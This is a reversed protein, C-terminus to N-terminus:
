RGGSESPPPGGTRTWVVIAGCRNTDMRFETPVEAPSRYIEVLEIVEPDLRDLLFDRRRTGDVYFVPECATTGRGLLIKQFGYGRYPRVDVRPVGRLMDSTLEPQREEIEERTVYAGHGREIRERVRRERVDLRRVEVKLDAVEFVEESLLFTARTTRNPRLDITTSKPTFGTYRVVLTDTGPPLSEIRFTGSSDTTAGRRAQRLFVQAGVVPRALIESRVIGVLTALSDSVAPAEEQATLAGPLPLLMSLLLLLCSVAIPQVSPERM